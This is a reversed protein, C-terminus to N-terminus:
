VLKEVNFILSFPYYHAALEKGYLDFCNEVQKKSFGTAPLPHEEQDGCHCSIATCNSGTKAQQKKPL